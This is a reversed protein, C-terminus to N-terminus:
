TCTTARHLLRCRAQRADKLGGTITAAGAFDFRRHGLDAHSERLLFPSVGMVLIGVPVNIFFICSWSLASPLAGGLLVGAAGGSGSAAVWLVAAWAAARANLRRYGRRMHKTLAM